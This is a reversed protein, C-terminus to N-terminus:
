LVIRNRFKFGIALLTMNMTEIADMIYYKFQTNRYLVFM